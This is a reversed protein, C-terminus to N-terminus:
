SCDNNDDEQLRSMFKAVEVGDSKSTTYKILNKDLMGHM